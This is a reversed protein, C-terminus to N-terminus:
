EYTPSSTRSPSITLFGKAIVLYSILNIINHIFWIKQRLETEILSTIFFTCFCYIFVGLFIWFTPEKTLVIAKEGMKLLVYGCLFAALIDYATSFTAMHKETDELYSILWAPIALIM